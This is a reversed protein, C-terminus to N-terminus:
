RRRPHWRKTSASSTQRHCGSHDTLCACCLLPPAPCAGIWFFELNTEKLKLLIDRWPMGTWPYTLVGYTTTALDEFAVKVFADDPLLKSINKQTKGAPIWSNLEKDFVLGDFVRGDQVGGCADPRMQGVPKGNPGVVSGDPQVTHVAVTNDQNFFLVKGTDQHCLSGDSCIKGIVSVNLKELVVGEPTRYSEYFDDLIGFSTVGTQNLEKCDQLAAMRVMTITKPPELRDYNAMAKTYDSFGRSTAIQQLYEKFLPFTDVLQNYDEKSLLETDCVTKARVYATAKTKRLLSIEGVIKEGGKFPIRKYTDLADELEERQLIEVEGPHSTIFFMGDPVTGQKILYDGPLFVRRKLRLALSAALEFGQETELPIQLKAMLARCTHVRTKEQLPRSLNRLITEEDFCHGGPYKLEQHIRVHQRLEPKFQHHDMYRQLDDMRRTYEGQSGFLATVHRATLSAILHMLFFGGVLLSVFYFWYESQGVPAVLGPAVLLMQMLAHVMAGAYQEEVSKGSLGSRVLWSGDEEEDVHAFFVSGNAFFVQLCGSFHVVLYVIAAHMVYWFSSSYTIAIIVEALFTGSDLKRRVGERWLRLLRVLKWLKSLRLLLLLQSQGREEEDSMAFGIFWDLPFSAVFDILFWSCMYHRIIKRQDLILTGRDYYATFCNRVIDAIFFVDVATEWYTAWHTPDWRSRRVFAMQFPVAVAVYMLLFFSVVEWALLKPSGPVLLLGNPVGQQDLSLYSTSQKRDMASLAAGRTPRGATTTAQRQRAAAPVAEPTALAQPAVARHAAAQAAAVPSAAPAAVAAAEAATAAPALPASAAPPQPTQMPQM